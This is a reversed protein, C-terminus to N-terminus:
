FNSTIKSIIKFNTFSFLIAFDNMARAKVAEIVKACSLTAEDVALAQSMLCYKSVSRSEHMFQGADVTGVSSLLNSVNGGFIYWHERKFKVEPDPHLHAGPYLISRDCGCVFMAVHM